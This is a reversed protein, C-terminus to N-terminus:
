SEGFARNWDYARDAQLSSRDACRARFERLWGRMQEDDHLYPADPGLRMDIGCLLHRGWWVTEDVDVDDLDLM